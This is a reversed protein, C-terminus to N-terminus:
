REEWTFAEEEFFVDFFVALDRRRVEAATVEVLKLYGARDERYEPPLVHAGLYTAVVRTPGEAGLAEAVELMRIETEVDLGYGSKIEITTTGHERCRRLWTRGHALLQENTAERTARVTSLIGGGERLIDLYSKGQMRAEWEGARDGAFILHTHPDVFGPLIVGGSTDIIRDESIPYKRRLEPTTGVELIRGDSVAVAGDAIVELQGQQQGRAPADSFGACTVVQAANLILLDAAPTDSM